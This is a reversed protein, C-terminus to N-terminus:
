TDGAPRCRSAPAGGGGGAPDDARTDGAPSISPPWALRTDGAPGPPACSPPPSPCASVGPSPKGHPLELLSHTHTRRCVIGLLTLLTHAVLVDYSCRERNGKERNGKERPVRRVPFRM